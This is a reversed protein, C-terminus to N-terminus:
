EYCGCVGNLQVKKVFRYCKMEHDVFYLCEECCSLKQVHYNAEELTKPDNKTEM